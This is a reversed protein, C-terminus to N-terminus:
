PSTTPSTSTPPSTSPSSSPSSSDTPSNSPSPSNTPKLPKQDVYITVNGGSTAYTDGGPSQSLITGDKGKVYSAARRVLPVFGREQLIETATDVDKGVVRPVKVQANSVVLNIKSKAPEPTGAQPDTQLVQGAPADSNQPILTGLRLGAALLASKADGTSMGVLGSPVNVIQTGDSVKLDVAGGKSSFVGGEPSQSIVMGKDNKGTYVMTIQGVRLGQSTLTAEADQLSQGTVNPTTLSGSHGSLLNRAVLLAVIFVAITAVGLLLYALGRGKRRPPERLLVTTAPVSTVIDPTDRRVPQAQLPQGALAREIDQRMEGATAYRNIPNKAMAVLVITDASEPVDSEVSSPPTVDERVHQYAVSVATDGTFPPAGTLLEYLLCGTSYIDSRADVHEGRAQEPSLYHATGVVAATQTMTSTSGTLARAIGFDMVKVDGTPTIMVNGPKIDRHVIGAAHAQELAACVAATIELARRPLLRGESALVDRLTRGEVFEMVIYPATTGNISGEGTDYVAVIAPSNLSAAAQAERRFRGQSAPDRALDARLLKVAVDRGLRVDRGLHVEAMGGHGIVEGVEYRGGLMPKGAM